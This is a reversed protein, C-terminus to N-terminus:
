RAPGKPQCEPKGKNAKFRCAANVTAAGKDAETASRVEGQGQAVTADTAASNASVNSVTNMAEQGAGVSAQGQGQSVEAQKKATRAKQCEGLALILAFLLVAGGIALAIARIGFREIM